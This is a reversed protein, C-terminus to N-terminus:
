TKKRKAISKEAELLTELGKTDARNFEIGIGFPSTRVVRGQTWVVKGISEADIDIFVYTGFKSQNSVKLFMGGMSLNSVRGIYTEPADEHYQARLDVQMREYMRKEEM